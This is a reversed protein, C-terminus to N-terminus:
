GIAGSLPILHHTFRRPLLGDARTAVSRPQTFEERHLVFYPPTMLVARGLASGRPALGRGGPLDSSGALLQRGLHIVTV